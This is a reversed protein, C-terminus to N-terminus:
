RAAALLAESRVDVGVADVRVIAVQVHAGAGVPGGPKRLPLTLPMIRLRLEPAPWAPAVSVYM